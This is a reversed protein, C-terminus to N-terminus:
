HHSFQNSSCFHTHPVLASANATVHPLHHCKISTNSITIPLTFLVSISLLIPLCVQSPCQAALSLVHTHSKSKHPRVYPPVKALSPVCCSAKPQGKKLITYYSLSNPKSLPLTLQSHSNHAFSCEQPSM